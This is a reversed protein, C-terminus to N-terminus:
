YHKVGAGVEDKNKLDAYVGFLCSIFCLYPGLLISLQFYSCLFGVTLGLIPQGFVCFCARVREDVSVFKSGDVM